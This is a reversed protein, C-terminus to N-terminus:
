EDDFYTTIKNSKQTLLYVEENVVVEISFHNKKESVIKIKNKNIDIRILIDRFLFNVSMKKIIKYRIPKIILKDGEINIGLFGKLLILWAGAFAALHLGNNYNERPYFNLNFNASMQMYKYAEDLFGTKAAIIGAHTLSLSSEHMTRKDYFVFNDYLEKHSYNEPFLSLLMIVDSQKIIKTEINEFTNVKNRFDRSFKPMGNKEYEEVLEDELDFYGDFQEFINGKRSAKKLKFLKEKWVDIKTSLQKDFGCLNNRPCIRDLLQICYAFAWRVIENTYYNNNVLTHYEDIGMVNPIEYIKLEDNYCLLSEFYKCSEIILELCEKELFEYDGTLDTYTKISYIVNSTIHMVYEGTKEEMKRGNLFDYLTSPGSPLGTIGSEESWFVGQRGINKANLKAQKLTLIRYNIIEKAKKPYFFSYFPVLYIDNNFFFHGNHYQSTLGRAPINHGDASSLRSLQHFSYMLGKMDYKSDNLNFNLNFYKKRLMKMNDKKFNNFTCSLKNSNLEKSIRDKKKDAHFIIKKTICIEEGKQIKVSYSLGDRKYQRIKMLKEKEKLEIVTKIGFFYSKNLTEYMLNLGNDTPAYELLKWHHSKVNNGFFGGHYDNGYRYNVCFEFNITGSYTKSLLKFQSVYINSHVLSLLEQKELVFEDGSETIFIIKTKVIDTFYDLKKKYDKIKVYDFNVYEGDIILKFDMWNPISILQDKTSLSYDYLKSIFIGPKSYDSDFELTNRIGVVTNEQCFITEFFANEEKLYGSETYEMNIEM